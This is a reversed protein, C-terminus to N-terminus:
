VLDGKYVLVKNDGKDYNVILPPADELMEEDEVDNAAVDMRAIVIDESDKYKDAILEWIPAFSKCQGLFTSDESLM